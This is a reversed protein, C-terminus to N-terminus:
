VVRFLGKFKFYVVKDDLLSAVTIADGADTITYKLDLQVTSTQLPNIVTLFKIHDAKILQIDKGLVDELIEKVMQMMCVGPVVPTGPFHGVFIEHSPNIQIVAKASSIETEITTITFFNGQLM